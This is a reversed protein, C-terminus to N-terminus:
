TTAPGTSRPALPRHSADRVPHQADSPTTRTSRDAPRRSVRVPRRDDAPISPPPVSPVGIVADRLETPRPPADLAGARTGRPLSSLIERAVSDVTLRRRRAQSRLLGFAEGVGVRHREALAGKAQEVPARSTLVEALHATMLTSRRYLDTNATVTGLVRAVAEAGALLEATLQQDATLILQLSGRVADACRLPLAVTARLHVGLARATHPDGDLLRLDSHVVTCGERAARVGPGQQQEVQLRALCEARPDSWGAASIRDDTRLLCIAGAVGLAEAVEICASTLLDGSVLEPLPTAALDLALDIVTASLLVPDPM